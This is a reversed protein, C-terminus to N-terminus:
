GDSTLSFFVSSTYFSTSNTIFDEVPSPPRFSVRTCIKTTTAAGSPGMIAYLRGREFRGSIGKIIEKMPAPERHILRQFKEKVGERSKVSYRIDRFVLDIGRRPSTEDTQGEESSESGEDSGEDDSNKVDRKEKGKSIRKLPIGKESEGEDSSELSEETDENDQNNNVTSATDDSSM